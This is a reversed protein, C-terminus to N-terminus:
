NSIERASISPFGGRYQDAIERASTDRGYYNIMMDPDAGAGVLNKVATEWGKGSSNIIMILPTINGKVEGTDDVTITGIANPDTIGSMNSNKHYNVFRDMDPIGSITTKDRINM